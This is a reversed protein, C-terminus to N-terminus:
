YTVPFLFSFYFTSNVLDEENEAPDNPSGAEAVDPMPPKEKVPKPRMEIGSILCLLLLCQLTKRYM